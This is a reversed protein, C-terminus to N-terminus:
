RPVGAPDALLQRLESLGTRIRSKVTGLPLGTKRAIMPHSWGDVFALRILEARRADLRNVLDLLEGAEVVASPSLEGDPATALLESADLSTARHRMARSQRRAEDIARNRVSRRLWHTFTGRAPDYSRVMRPLAAFMDHVVDEADSPDSLVSRAIALADRRHRDYLAGISAWDGGATDLALDADTVERLPATGHPSM